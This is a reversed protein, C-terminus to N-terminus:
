RNLGKPRARMPKFDSRAYELTQIQARTRIQKPAHLPNAQQFVFPQQIPKKDRKRVLGAGIAVLVILAAFGGGISGGLVGPEVTESRAAYNMLNPSPTARIIPVICRMGKQAVAARTTNLDLYADTGFEACPNVSGSANWFPAVRRRCRGGVVLGFYGACGPSFTRVCMGDERYLGGRACRSDIIMDKQGLLITYDLLFTAFTENTLSDGLCINFLILLLWGLRM